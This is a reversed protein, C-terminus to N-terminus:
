VMKNACANTNGINIAPYIVWGTHGMWYVSGANRVLTHVKQLMLQDVLLMLLIYSGDSTNVILNKLLTADVGTGFKDTLGTVRSLATSGDLIKIRSNIGLYSVMMDIFNIEM